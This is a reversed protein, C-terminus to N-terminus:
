YDPWYIWYGSHIGYYIFSFYAIYHNIYPFFKLYSFVGLKELADRIAINIFIIVAFMLLIFVKEGFAIAIAIIAFIFIYGIKRANRYTGHEMREPIGRSADSLLFGLIFSFAALPFWRAAQSVIDAPGIPVSQLPIGLGIYFGNEFLVVSIFAISTVITTFAISIELYNKILDRM